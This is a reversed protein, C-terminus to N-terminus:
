AGLERALGRDLGLDERLARTLETAAGRLFLHGGAFRRLRFGGGYASWGRMSAEDAARDDAGVYASLACALRPEPRPHYDRQLQFAARLAPRLAEILAEDSAFNALEDLYGISRLFAPDSLRADLEDASSLERPGAAGPSPHAAVCLHSPGPRGRAELERALAHAVLAGLSHGYFAFPPALLEPNKDLEDLLADVLPQMEEFPQEGERDLAGPLRVAWLEVEPLHRAWPRFVSAVGGAYPFCILRARPNTPRSLRLLVGQESSAPAGAEVWAALETISPGDLIRAIPLRVSFGREIADALDLAMVSDLGLSALPRDPDLKSPAMEFVEAVEERVRAEINGAAVPAQPLAEARPAPTEIQAADPQERGLRLERGRPSEIWYRQGAFPYSPLSTLRAGASCSAALQTAAGRVHLRALARLMEDRGAPDPSVTTLEADAIEGPEVSAEPVVGVVLEARSEGALYADLLSALEDRSRAVCAVRHGLQAREITSRSLDALSVRADENARLFEALRACARDLEARTRGSVVFLEAVGPSPSAELDPQPLPAGEVILHANTGGLGFTNVGALRRGRTAPWPELSTPIRLGLGALDVGEPASRFHLHPPIQEHHLALATKILAAVGAAAEAHGINSKISGLACAPGEREVGVVEGLAQAEIPDGVPTGTGHAEVYQLEGPSIGARRSAVRVVEQQARGSPLTVRRTRGDQNVASGRIVAYIREGAALAQALPRLVVVGAGESRAYGDARADFGKCRGDPALMRAQSAAITPEPRLMLNVGGVLALSADGSRISQCALHVAVLSSSCATDLVVSPGRLDFAHSIRNAAMCGGMGVVTQGDILERDHVSTRIALYDQLMLGVFVAADSGALARPDMGADEVAAWAVELLVRHQPDMHAAERASIGFLEADFRDVEDIFGAERISIKGRRTADPDFMSDVCWRDGPVERMADKGSALLKWMSIPSDVGGPFRCGIGVIAIAQHESAAM